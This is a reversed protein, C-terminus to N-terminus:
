HFFQFLKAKQDGGKVKLAKLLTRLRGNSEALPHYVHNVTLYKSIRFFRDFSEARGHLIKHGYLGNSSWRSAALLVNWRAVNLPLVKRQAHAAAPERAKGIAEWLLRIIVNCRDRQIDRMVIQAASM